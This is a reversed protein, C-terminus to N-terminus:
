LDFTLIYQVDPVCGGNINGKILPCDRLARFLVAKARKVDGAALEFKVFVKWLIPSGKTRIDCILYTFLKKIFFM